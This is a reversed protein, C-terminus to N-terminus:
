RFVSLALEKVRFKQFCVFHAVSDQHHNVTSVSPAVGSVQSGAVGSAIAISLLMAPGLATAGEEQLSWLSEIVDDACERAPRCLEYASGISMLDQFSDLKSGAVVLPEKSCDGWVTVASNFAILGIRKMPNTQAITRIQGEIAAQQWFRHAWSSFLLVVYM